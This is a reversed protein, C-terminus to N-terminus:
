RGEDRLAALQAPTQHLVKEEGFVPMLFRPKGEKPGGGMLYKRLAMNVIESLTTGAAVAEKKAKRFIQDELLLTTRMCVYMYINQNEALSKQGKKM